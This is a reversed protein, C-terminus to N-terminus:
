KGGKAIGDRIFIMGIGTLATTIGAGVDGNVILTIGSAVGAVGAWFTKTGILRKFM